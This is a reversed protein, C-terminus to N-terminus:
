AQQREHTVVTYIGAMIMLMGLLIHLTMPEGLCIIGGIVGVIPVALM